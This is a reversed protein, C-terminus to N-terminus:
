AEVPNFSDEPTEVEEWRYGGAKKQKGILVDRISKANTGVTAAAIAISPFENICNGELDLQRVRRGQPQRPQREAKQREREAKAAKKQERSQEKELIAAEKQVQIQQKRARIAAPGAHDPETNYGILAFFASTDIIQLHYRQDQAITRAKLVTNTEEDDFCVYYDCKGSVNDHYIGGVAEVIRNLGNNRFLLPDQPNGHFAFHVESFDVQKSQAEEIIKRISAEYDNHPPIYDYVRMKPKDTQTSQIVSHTVEFFESFDEYDNEKCVASVLDALMAADEGAHHEKYTFGYHSALASLKCRMDPFLARFAPVSDYFKIVPKEINEAALAKTTVSMDFGASHAVVTSTTMLEGLEDKWYQGFTPADAVAASNIGHIQTNFADFPALPNILKFRESIKVGDDYLAWGVACISDNHRNPTEVDYFLYRM